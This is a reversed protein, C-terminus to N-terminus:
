ENPPNPNPSNPPVVANNIAVVTGNRLKMQGGSVVIEGAKVGSVVAVQDGRTDGLKVFRQQVTLRPNGKDDVGNKEVVFVTDGFPNYTVVTQPLTIQANKGGFQIRVNAFMGPVLRREPNHLAARVQVNRSSSDVKSNISEITGDFTQQPYTDVTAAAPQGIELQALAQQPVYFDVLIPDLAQLTVVATGATLYQGIDVQRIGLRGAFPAKVIKEEILAQQAAVQARASKLTSVDTDINAQSIAQAAFQEQDRKYTQEALEAAAQLQQLKAYDDNPKLRLLVKGAAVDNGSDFAIEDVVGSAQASLDAGRVARLTGTSQIFPQWDSAAAEITSVTQPANAAADMFKKGFSAGIRQWAFILGLVLIVAILMILIPKIMARPKATEM